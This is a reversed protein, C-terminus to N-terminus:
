GALNAEAWAYVAAIADDIGAPNKGGAQAMDPRGGGGGGIHRAFEKVLKGAHVKSGAIDKTCAVVLVAKAGKDAFLVVLSTGLQDRLRDAQEKLDGDFRAAVVKVGGITKASGVIDGAAAKALERELAELEKELRKREEQLKRVAVLVNDQGTKLGDAAARVTDSWGRAVALAGTGTQAEVRRVGAAIGSESTILLSGIEGTRTVHTGGCLEVSYGPVTVVRVDDDYKEGFLAMAGSAKAADLDMLQTTLASNRMIQENVQDEVQRLEEDTMPVHHSFDFRLRRPGVLSGKQTVHEGLVSRLAAHLLHTATHNRQTAARAEAGVEATVVDGVSLGGSVVTGRHLHLGSQKTTDDVTFSGTDHGLSGVDGVQGGSEAYFPTSDLLVIGSEGDALHDVQELDEGQVRVLALVSGSGRVGAGDAGPYGLFATEGHEDRLERWLGGVAEEGSGKWNKRGREKQEAMRAQFGADDVLFGREECILRTLDDPFGYTDYLTFVADGSLTGGEELGECERDLLKLGRDLTTRFRREEALVVQRIFDQREVLEPYAGGFDAVVQDCVEHLFPQDIGLKVGFRIARRMIRRLVYNRKENAPMIGDAVLFTTARAHDAIVRMAVDDEDAGGYQKGAIQAARTILGTFADTDYNSYVGQLVAAIREIGSGTDISPKPLDTRTGDAHQEYQMFVLNWIEVYRDDETAPGGEEDSIGPGHDYHIESCPGCPGVPGMSWFNDKAGMRQIRKPDVGIDKWIEFAEDDEEFVTVWLREVDMGLEDVLLTWAMECAERKFYDGFSFNGLMEFFTHHRATRGVNELDNHKGSVRLCRQSSTARPIDRKEAGTFVDKFPVMGANVFYLTPDNHPILSASPVVEHGRQAFFDLFRRRIENVNM